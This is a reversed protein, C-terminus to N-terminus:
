STGFATAFYPAMVGLLTDYLGLQAVTAPEPVLLVIPVLM